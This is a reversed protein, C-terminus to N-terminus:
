RVLLVKGTNGGVNMIQLATKFEALKFRAKVSLDLEDKAVAKWIEDTMDALVTSTHALWFDIGFGKWTLNRFILDANGVQAIATDMLGFSVITAGSQMAAFVRTVATGGVCDLLAAVHQGNTIKLITAALDETEMSVSPFPLPTKLSSRSIGVVQIGKRKALGHVLRAIGSSAANVALWDGAKLNSESILAWATFPNLSFQCAKESGVSGPVKHIKEIPVAVYEAWTGPHRFAVNTGLPMSIGDGVAVVTGSGELGATQPFAPKIRYRNNIFMLDSPHIPRAEVQVLLEGAAPKPVAIAELSLVDQAQGSRSFVLAQMTTPIM